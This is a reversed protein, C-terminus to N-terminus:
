TVISLLNAINRLKKIMQIMVRHFDEAIGGCFYYPSLGSTSLAVKAKIKEFASKFSRVRIYDCESCCGMINRRAGYEPNVYGIRM